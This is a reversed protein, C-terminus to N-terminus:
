ASWPPSHTTTFFVSGPPLHGPGFGLEMLSPEVAKALEKKQAM